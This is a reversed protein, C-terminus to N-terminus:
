AARGHGASRQLSDDRDGGLIEALQLIGDQGRGGADLVRALDRDSSTGEVDAEVLSAAFRSSDDADLTGVFVAKMPFSCCIEMRSEASPAVSPCGPALQFGFVPLELRFEKLEIALDIGDLAVIAQDGHGLFLLRHQIVELFSPFTPFRLCSSALSSSSRVVWSAWSWVSSLCPM